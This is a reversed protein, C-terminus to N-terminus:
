IDTSSRYYKSYICDSWVSWFNFDSEMLTKSVWHTHVAIGTQTKGSHSSSLTAMATSASVQFIILKYWFSVQLYMKKDHLISAMFSLARKYPGQANGEAM